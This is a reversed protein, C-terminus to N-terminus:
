INLSSIRLGARNFSGATGYRYRNAPKLDAKVGATLQNQEQAARNIDAEHAMQAQLAAESARAREGQAALAEQQARIAEMNAGTASGLASLRADQQGAASMIDALRADYTSMLKQRAASSEQGLQGLSRNVGTQYEALKGFLDSARTNIQSQLYNGLQDQRVNQGGISVTQPQKLAARRENMFKTLEDLQSQGQAFQNQSQQFNERIWSDNYPNTVSTTHHTVKAPKPRFPRTLDKALNKAAKFPNGM